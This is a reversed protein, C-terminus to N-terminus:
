RGNRGEGWVGYWTVRQVVNGTLRLGIMRGGVQWPIPITQRGAGTILPLTIDQNDVLLVPTLVQGALDVDLFLRKTMSLQTADALESPTQWEVGIPAGNDTLVGPVELDWVASAVAGHTVQIEDHYIIANLGLGLMRWTANDGPGSLAFSTVGDSFVVEDKMMGAIVPNFPGVNEVTQGREIPGLAEYGLLQNAANNFLRVGSVARYVIGFVTPIVTYPWSTGEAGLIRDGPTVNPPQGNLPYVYRSTFVWLQQDWVVLKQVPDDETGVRVINAYGEAKGPTSVYIYNQNSANTDHGVFMSGQFYVADLCTSPFLNNDYQVENIGLAQLANLGITTWVVTNDQTTLTGINQWIVTGDTLQNGLAPASGWLPQVPATIGTQVVKFANHSPTLPLIVEGLTNFAALSAWATDPLTWNPASGGTTGSTSCQVYYGTGSDNYHHLAITVGAVWPTVVIPQGSLSSVEDTYTTTSNDSIVDLFFFLAGGESTRWLKRNGVQPDSSIPINSLKVAQDAVGAIVTIHDSPNSDNGTINNGYTVLYQLKSGGSLAAPGTGLGVGGFQYFNDIYLVPVPSPLLPNGGTVRVKQIASWDLNLSTGIRTFQSKAIAVQIWQNPLADLIVAATAANLNSTAPVLQVVCQYYNHAFDPNIPDVDFQLNLWIVNAPSVVNVWFVIYDTLLSIDGSAYTALNLAGAFNRTISWPAIGTGDPAIQMSGAGFSGPISVDSLSCHVATWSASSLDFNDILTQDQAVLAAQMKNIPRDIGWNQVMNGPTIKINRGGGISFLYNPVGFAPPAKVLTMRNGNYGTDIITATPNSLAAYWLNKGDYLYHDNLFCGMSIVGPVNFRLTSGWRSKAVPEPEPACGVCRRMAGSPLADRGGSLVLRKSFDRWSFISDPM